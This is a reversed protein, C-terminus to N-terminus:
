RSSQVHKVPVSSASSPTQAGSTCASSTSCHCTSDISARRLLRAPVTGDVGAGDLPGHIDDGTREGRCQRFLAQARGRGELPEPARLWRAAGRDGEQADVGLHQLGEEFEVVLM